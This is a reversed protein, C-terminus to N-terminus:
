ADAKLFLKSLRVKAEYVTARSGRHSRFQSHKRGHKEPQAGTTRRGHASKGSGRRWGDLFLYCVQEMPWTARGGRQSSKVYGGSSRSVADTSIPARRLLPSLAGTSGGRTSAMSLGKFDSMSATGGEARVEAFTAPDKRLPEFVPGILLRSVDREIIFGDTLTLRLKFGGIAKVDRVRLLAM